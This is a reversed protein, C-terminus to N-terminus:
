GSEQAQLRGRYMRPPYLGNSLDAMIELLLSTKGIGTDGQILTVKGMPIFPAWLWDINKPKVDKLCGYSIM